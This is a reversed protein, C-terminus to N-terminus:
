SEKEEGKNEDYPKNIDGVIENYAENLDFVNSYFGVYEYEQFTM